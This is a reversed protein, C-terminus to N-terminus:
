GMVVNESRPEITTREENASTDSFDFLREIKTYFREKPIAFIYVFDFLRIFVSSKKRKFHFFLKELRSSNM